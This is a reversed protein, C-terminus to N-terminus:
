TDESDAAFEAARPNPIGHANCCPYCYSGSRWTCVRNACAPEICFPWWFPPEGEVVVMEANVRAM